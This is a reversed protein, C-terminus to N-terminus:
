INLLSGASLAPPTYYANQTGSGKGTPVTPPTSQGGKGSGMGPQAVGEVQEVPPLIVDGPGGPTNGPGGGGRGIGSIKNLPHRADTPSYVPVDLAQGLGHFGAGIATGIGMGPITNVMMPREMAQEIIGMAGPGQYGGPNPDVFGGLVGATQGMGRPDQPDGIGAFQGRGQISRNGGEGRSGGIGAAIGGLGGRAAVDGVSRAGFGEGSGRLGGRGNGRGGNGGGSM